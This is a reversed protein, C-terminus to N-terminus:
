THAKPLSSQARARVSERSRAMSRHGRAAPRPRSRASRSPGWDRIPYLRPAAIANEDALKAQELAKEFGRESGHVMTTVGHALKMFYVYELPLPEERIHTHLDILGPM